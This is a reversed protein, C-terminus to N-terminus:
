LTMHPDLPLPPTWPVTILPRLNKQKLQPQSQPSLEPALHPLPMLFDHHSLTIQCGRMQMKTGPTELLSYVVRAPLQGDSHQTPYSM